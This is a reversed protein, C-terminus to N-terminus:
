ADVLEAIVPEISPQEGHEGPLPKGPMAAGLFTDGIQVVQVRRFSSEFFQMTMKRRKAVAVLGAL